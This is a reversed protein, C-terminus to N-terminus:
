STKQLAQWMNVKETLEAELARYKNGLKKLEEWEKELQTNPVLINLREELAQLTDVLSKGNIDIDANDGELYIKGSLRNAASWTAEVANYGAGTTYIPAITAGASTITVNSYTPPVAGVVPNLTIIDKEKTADM